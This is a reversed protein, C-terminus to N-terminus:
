LLSGRVASAWRWCSTRRIAARSAPTSMMPRSTVQGASNASAPQIRSHVPANFSLAVASVRFAATCVAVQFSRSYATGYLELM